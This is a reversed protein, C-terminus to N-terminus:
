DYSNISRVNLWLMAAAAALLVGFGRAVISADFGDIILSRAAELVYTVPNWTALLEMPRTLQNRPVFNPTLFLLPFFVMGISQTAAGSRSKLAVLQMFGAYVV